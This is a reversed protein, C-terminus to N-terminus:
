RPFFVAARLRGFRNHLAFDYDSRAKEQSIDIPYTPEDGRGARRPFRPSAKASRHMSTMQFCRAAFRREARLNLRRLQSWM